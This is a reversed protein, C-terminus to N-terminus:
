TIVRKLYFFGASVITCLSVGAGIKHATRLRKIKQGLILLNAPSM